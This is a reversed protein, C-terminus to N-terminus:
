EQKKKAAKKSTAKAQEGQTTARKPSGVPTREKWVIGLEKVAEKVAPTARLLSEVTAALTDGRSKAVHDLVARLEDTITLLLKNM